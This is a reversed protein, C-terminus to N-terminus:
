NPNYTLKGIYTRIDVELGSWSERPYFGYPWDEETIMKGAYIYPKTTIDYAVGVGGDPIFTHLRCRESVEGSYELLKDDLTKSCHEYERAPFHLHKVGDPLLIEEFSDTSRKLGRTFSVGEVDLWKLTSSKCYISPPTNAKQESSQLFNLRKAHLKPIKLRMLEAKSYPYNIRVYIHDSKECEYEWGMKESPSSLESCSSVCLYCCAFMARLQWKMFVRLVIVKESQVERLNM